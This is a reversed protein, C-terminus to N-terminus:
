TKIVPEIHAARGKGVLAALGAAELRKVAAYTQSRSLGTAQRIDANSLKGRESLLRLIREDPTTAEKVESNEPLLHIQLRRALDVDLAYSTGRGRGRAVLYGAERLAIMKQAADEESMQIIKAASWRDLSPIMMLARLIMLDELLLDRDRREEQMIFAVFPEHVDLPLTLRVHSEDATYQPQMKGLRLQGDYIRDVGLGVRNVLGITQFVRTIQENRHAPPHRLVNDPTIGSLFGGPSTVELRDQYLSVQVSQRIFYDRHAMGNLLAERLVEWSLHPLEVHRFGEGKITHIKNNAEMIREMERLIALIPGRLDRRHDYRTSNTFRMFTVEHQPAHTAIAAGTGLLLLGALNIRGDVSLGLADLLDADSLNALREDRMERRIIGRLGAMEDADLCSVDIHEMPQSTLDHQGGNAILQAFIRGTLPKCEKGIRIKAVGDSTTHPPMGRPVHILLLLAGAETLEEIDVLIHPDTGDYVARRVANIDYNGVGQLAEARSRVGDRVGLVVTGGKANALCVVAERLVRHMAKRNSEWQKFELTEDELSDAPEGDLRLLLERIEDSNRMTGSYWTHLM